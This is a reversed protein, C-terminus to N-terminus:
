SLIPLLPFNLGLAVPLRRVCDLLVPQLNSIGNSKGVRNPFIKNPSYSRYRLLRETCLPKQPKRAALPALLNPQAQTLCGVM